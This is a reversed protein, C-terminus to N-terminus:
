LGLAKREAATLKALATKKLDAAAKAKTKLASEYRKIDFPPYVVDAFYGIGRFVHYVGTEDGDALYLLSFSFSPCKVSLAKLEEDPFFKGVDKLRRAKDFSFVDSLKLRDIENSIITREGDTTTVVRTAVIAISYNTGM